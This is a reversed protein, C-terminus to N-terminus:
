TGKEKGKGRMIERAKRANGRKGRKLLGCYAYSYAELERRGRPRASEEIVWGRVRLQGQLIANPLFIKRLEVGRPGRAVEAM